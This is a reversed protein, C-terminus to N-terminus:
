KGMENAISLSPPAPRPSAAVVESQLGVRVSRAHKVGSGSPVVLRVVVRTCIVCDDAGKDLMISPIYGVRHCCRGLM